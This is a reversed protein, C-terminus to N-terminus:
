LSLNDLEYTDIQYETVYSYVLTDKDRLIVGDVSKPEHYGPATYEPQRQSRTGIYTREDDSMDNTIESVPQERM